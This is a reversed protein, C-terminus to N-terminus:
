PTSVNKISGASVHTYIELKLLEQIYRFDAGNEVPAPRSWSSRCLKCACTQKGENEREM